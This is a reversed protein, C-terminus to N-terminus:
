RLTDCHSSSLYQFLVQKLFINRLNNPVYKNSISTKKQSCTLERFSRRLTKRFFQQWILTTVLLKRTYFNRPTFAEKHLLKQTSLKETHFRTQTFIERHTFAETHLFERHLPKETYFNRHAFWQLGIQTNFSETYLSRQTVAKTHLLELTNTHLLEKSYLSRQTFGETHLLSRQTFAGTHTYFSATHLRKQTFPKETHFSRHAFADTHLFGDTYLSRRTFVETHLLESVNTHLLEKSYLSRQTFCDTHLFSRKTFAERHLFAGATHTFAETRRRGGAKERTVGYDLKLRSRQKKHFFTLFM